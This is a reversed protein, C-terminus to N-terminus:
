GKTSTESRSDSQPERLSGGVNDLSRRPAKEAHEAFSKLLRAQNALCGEKSNRPVPQQSDVWAITEQLIRWRELQDCCRERKETEIQVLEDFTVIDRVSGLM